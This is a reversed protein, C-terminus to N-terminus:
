SAVTSSVMRSSPMPWWTMKLLPATITRGEPMSLPVPRKAASSSSPNEAWLTTPIPSASFSWAKKSGSSRCRRHVVSQRQKSLRCIQNGSALRALAHDLEDVIEDGGIERAEFVREDAMADDQPFPVGIADRKADERHSSCERRQVMPFRCIVPSPPM